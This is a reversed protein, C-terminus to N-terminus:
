QRAAGQRQPDLDVVFCRRQPDLALDKWAVGYHRAGIGLVGGCALVAYAIRGSSVDIMVRELKGVEAGDRDLVEDGELTRCSMVYPGPGDGGEDGGPVASGNDRTAAAPPPVPGPHLAGM